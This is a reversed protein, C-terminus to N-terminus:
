KQYELRILSAVINAKEVVEEISLNENVGEHVVAFAMRRNKRTSPKKFIFLSSNPIELAKEVNHFLPEKESNESALVVASAGKRILEIKPIPLGLIARLHLEFESLTQTGALTVMGTDHPRPSLESFIVENETIFFEVGWIGFGTLAQVVTKAMQQAQLLFSEKMPHPQWSEVYDGNKQTHGIPPCFLVEGNRQSVTLLTIESTFHIFEEIIVEASKGRSERIAKEWATSLEEYSHVTSQGKGSSSMTPKIVAPFGVTKSAQQLEELSHAFAFKSTRIGLTESALKRIGKRDMTLHVANASPVVNAGLQEIKRLFETNIAEIEPVIFDPSHDAIISALESENQMDIVFCEDAVHMAPAGLYRDVAIVYQGLRQAAIVFEKGLEGSGLLLIKNKKM